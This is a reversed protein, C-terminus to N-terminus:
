QCIITTHQAKYPIFLLLYPFANACRHFQEEINNRNNKIIDNEIYTGNKSLYQPIVISQQKGNMQSINWCNNKTIASYNYVMSTFVYYNHDHFSCSNADYITTYQKITKLSSFRSCFIYLMFSAKFSYFNFKIKMLTEKINNSFDLRM